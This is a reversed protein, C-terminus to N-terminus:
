SPPLPSSSDGGGGPSFSKKKEIWWKALCIMCLRIWEGDDGLIKHAQGIELDHRCKACKIDSM